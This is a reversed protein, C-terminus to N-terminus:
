RPLPPRLRPPKLRLLRLRLPRQRPPRPQTLRLLKPHRLRPLRPLTQRPLRRRPPKQRLLRPLRPLPPLLRQRPLKPQRLRPLKPQRLLPPLLRQRPLRPLRLRLLKRRLLRLQRLRPPRQRLLRLQTAALCSSTQATAKQDVVQQQQDAPAEAAFTAPIAAVSGATFAAAAAIKYVRRTTKSMKRSRQIIPPSGVRHAETKSPRASECMPTVALLSVGLESDEARKIGAKLLQLSITIFGGRLNLTIVSWNHHKTTMYQCTFM